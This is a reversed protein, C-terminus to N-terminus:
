ENTFLGLPHSARTKSDTAEALQLGVCFGMYLAPDLVLSGSPGSYKQKSERGEHFDHVARIQLDLRRLPDEEQDLRALVVEDPAGGAEPSRKEGRLAREAFGRLCSPGHEGPEIAVQQGAAGLM